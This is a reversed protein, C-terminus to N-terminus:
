RRYRLFAYSLYLNIDFSTPNDGSGYGAIYDPTIEKFVGGNFLFKGRATWGLFCRKWVELRMGFVLEGWHVFYNQGPQVGEYMGGFPSEFRYTAENRRGYSGGYRVGVFVIDFDTSREPKILSQDVGLKLYGNASTYSLHDYDIKGRGAGVEMVWYRLERNKYDLQVELGQRQPNAFNLGLRMLDTGIRWQHYGTYKNKKSGDSSGVRLSDSQLGSVMTTDQALGSTCLVIFSGTLLIIFLHKFRIM